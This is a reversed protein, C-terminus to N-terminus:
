AKAGRVVNHMRPVRNAPAPNPGVLSVGLSQLWDLTTASENLFFERLQSNNRSEIKTPAFKAADIKHDEITDQIGNDRQIATKAATFSGVAIGTTGGPQALKELVLVRGGNEAVSCAAALGSGGAGVVIVDFQSM